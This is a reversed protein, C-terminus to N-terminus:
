EAEGPGSATGSTSVYRGVVSWWCCAELSQRPFQSVQDVIKDRVGLFDNDQASAHDFYVAGVACPRKISVEVSGDSEM